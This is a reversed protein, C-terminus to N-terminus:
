QMRGGSVHAAFGERAEKTLAAIDRADAKDVRIGLAEAASVFDTANRHEEIFIREPLSGAQSKAGALLRRSRIESIEDESVGVMEMGFIMGTTIEMIAFANFDGDAMTPIPGDNLRFLLWAENQKFKGPDM